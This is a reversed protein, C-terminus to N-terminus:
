LRRAVITSGASWAAWQGDTAVREAGTSTLWRPRDAGLDIRLVQTATAVIVVTGSGAWDRARGAIPFSTAVGDIEVVDDPGHDPNRVTVEPGAPRPHLGGAPCPVPAGQQRGSPLSVAHLGAEDCFSLVPSTIALATVAGRVQVRVEDATQPETAPDHHRQRACGAILLLALAAARQARGM